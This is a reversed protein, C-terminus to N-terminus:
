TMTLSAFYDLSSAFFVPLLCVLHFRISKLRSFNFFSYAFRDGPDVGGEGGGGGGGGGM